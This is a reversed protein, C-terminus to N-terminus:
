VAAAGTGPCTKGVLGVIACKERERLEKSNAAAKEHPLAALASV